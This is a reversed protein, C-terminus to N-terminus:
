DVNNNDGKVHVSNKNKYYEAVGTPYNVRPQRVIIDVHTLMQSSLRNRIEPLMSNNVYDFLVHQEYYECLNRTDALRLIYYVLNHKDYRISSVYFLYVGYPICRTSDARDVKCFLYQNNRFNFHKLKVQLRLEGSKNSMSPITQGLVVGGLPLLKDCQTCLSISEPPFRSINSNSTHTINNM